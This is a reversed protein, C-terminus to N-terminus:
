NDAKSATAVQSALFGSGRSGQRQSGCNSVVWSRYRDAVIDVDRGVTARMAAVIAIAEETEARSM